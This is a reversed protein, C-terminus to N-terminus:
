QRDAPSPELLKARRLLQQTAAQIDQWSAAASPERAIFVLDYGPRLGAHRLRVAERVRRRVRNRAVAQKAVRKGVSIGVRTRNVANPAVYLVL